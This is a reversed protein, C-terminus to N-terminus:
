GWLSLGLTPRGSLLELLRQPRRAERLGRDGMALWQHASWKYNANYCDQVWQWVNGAMDYLGFPNPKFSGVPSTWKRSWESGCDYCNANKEGLEDGWYFATTTGARAAYEWEAESLLWYQKGTMTSLWKVYARAHEWSVDIVPRDGRGWGADIVGGDRPCGGVLACADWDDFTVDYVSVAFPNAILVSHQPGENDQRGKESTPSGMTFEGAPVVIMLPCGKDCERFSDKPKLARERAATLVYNDFHERKYPWENWYWNMQQGIFSQNIWAIFGLTTGSVLM